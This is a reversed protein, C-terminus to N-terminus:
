RSYKYAAACSGESSVMCPGVPNLPTCAKAFLPCDKPPMRGKLVEGCKCAKVPKGPLIQIGFRCGADFRGFEKRLKMGSSPILGIGRWTADCVELHREISNKAKSNGDPKVVRSYENEVEARGEAIQRLISLIGSLIDLPEFGAVVCPIRSREVFPKYADSGIIASVHAPCLFADIKLEPDSALADLAPPVLKFATLLSLNGLGREMATRLLGLSAPITTEFGLALFVTQADPSKSALELATLPSQCVEVRAGGARCKALSSESGPVNLMDGFSAITAGSRALGIAADIYGADTVCVPCGPGSVLTISKPLAERIGNRAISMTHTGCVEMIRVARGAGELRGALASIEKLLAASAKADRFGDIYKM